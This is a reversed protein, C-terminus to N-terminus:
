LVPTRTSPDVTTNPDVFVFQQCIAIEYHSLAFFAPGRLVMGNGDFLSGHCPCYSNGSNDPPNVVCGQHTCIASFAFVGGADHGVIVNAGSVQALSWAHLPFDLVRGLEVRNGCAPIGSDAQADAFGGDPFFFGSDQAADPATADMPSDGGTDPSTGSDSPGADLDQTAGASCGFALAGVGAMGGM